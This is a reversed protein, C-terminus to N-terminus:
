FIIQSFFFNRKIFSKFKIECEEVSYNFYDTVNHSCFNYLLIPIIEPHSAMLQGIYEDTIKNGETITEYIEDELIRLYEFSTYNLIRSDKDYLYERYINFMDIIQSQYLDFYYAFLFMNNSKNTLNLLYIFGYIFFSYLLLLLIGFLIFFLIKNQIINNKEQNHIENSMSNRGNLNNNEKNILNLKNQISDNDDEYANNNNENSDKLNNILHM